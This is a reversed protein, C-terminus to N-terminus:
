FKFMKAIAEETQKSIEEEIKKQVEKGFKDCCPNFKISDGSVKANPKENHEKCTKNQLSRCIKNLDLLTSM